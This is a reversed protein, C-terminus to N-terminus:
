RRHGTQRFAWWHRHSYMLTMSQLHLSTMSSNFTNFCSISVSLFSNAVSLSCRFRAVSFFSNASILICSCIALCEARMVCQSGAYKQPKSGFYFYAFLMGIEKRDWKDLYANPSIGALKCVDTICQIAGTGCRGRPAFIATRPFKTVIGECAVYLADYVRRALDKFTRAPNAKLEVGTKQCSWALMGLAQGVYGASWGFAAARKGSHQVLDGDSLTAHGDVSRLFELDWLKGEGESFRMLIPQWGDQGKFVHAFYVHQHDLLYPREPLNNLGLIVADKPALSWTNFNAMTVGAIAEYAKDPVCRDPWREVTVRHGAKILAQVHYPLLM